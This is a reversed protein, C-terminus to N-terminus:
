AFLKGAPLPPGTLTTPQDHDDVGLDPPTTYATLALTARRRYENRLRPWLPRPNIKPQRRADDTWLAWAARELAADDLDTM